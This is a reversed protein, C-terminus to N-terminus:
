NNKLEIIMAAIATRTEQTADVEFNVNEIIECDEYDTPTTFIRSGFTVGNFRAKDFVQIIERGNGNVKKVLEINELTTMNKKNKNGKTTLQNTFKSNLL